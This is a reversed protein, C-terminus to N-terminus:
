FHSRRKAHPDERSLGPRREAASPSLLWSTLYTDHESRVQQILGNDIEFHMNVWIPPSLQGDVLFVDYYRALVQQGDSLFHPHLPQAAPRVVRAFLMDLWQQYGSLGEFIGAMPSVDVSGAYDFRFSTSLLDACSDLMAVGFVDYCRLFERAMEAPECVIDEVSITVGRSSIAEVIDEVTPRSLRGGSEAKRIVRDTYGALKALQIQTLQCCSRYRKLRAGNVRFTDRSSPVESAM